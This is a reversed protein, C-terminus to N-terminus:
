IRIRLEPLFLSGKRSPITSAAPVTARPQFLAKRVSNRGFLHVRCAMQMRSCGAITIPTRTTPSPKGFNGGFLVLRNENADYSSDIPNVWQMPPTGGGVSLQSLTPAGGLGNANTLVWVDSYGTSLTGGLYVIM